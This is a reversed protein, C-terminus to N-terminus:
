QRCRRELVAVAQYLIASLICLIVISMIVLDLKFVQSGYIILFGLGAQASLFEGIIVGVLCLGINVKMNALILPISGPLLVKTLIHIRNQLVEQDTREAFHREKPDDFDSLSCDLVRALAKLTELKPDKTAGSTIKDITGKPVGSLVSLEENTLKKKKKRQNIIELGM